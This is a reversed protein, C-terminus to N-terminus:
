ISLKRSPFDLKTFVFLNILVYLPHVPNFVPEVECASKLKDAEEHAINLVMAIDNTINEGGLPISNTYIFTSGEFVGIDTNEAGIDIIAIAKENAPM